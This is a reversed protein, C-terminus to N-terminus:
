KWVCVRNTLSSDLTQCRHVQMKRRPIFSVFAVRDLAHLKQVFALMKNRVKRHILNQGGQIKATNGSLYIGIYAVGNGLAFVGAIRRCVIARDNKFSYIVFRQRGDVKVSRCHETEFSNFCCTIQLIARFFKRVFSAQIFIRALM